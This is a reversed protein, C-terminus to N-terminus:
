HHWKTVYISYYNVILWDNPQTPELALVELRDLQSMTHSPNLNCDNM